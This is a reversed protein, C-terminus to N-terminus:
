SIEHTFHLFFVKKPAISFFSSDTPHFTCNNVTYVVRYDTLHFFTSHQSTPQVKMRVTSTKLLMTQVSKKQNM